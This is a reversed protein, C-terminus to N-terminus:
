FWHLKTAILSYALIIVAIVFFLYSLNRVRTAKSKQLVPVIGWLIFGIGAFFFIGLSIFDANLSYNFYSAVLMILGSIILILNIRSPNEKAM